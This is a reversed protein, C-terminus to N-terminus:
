AKKSKAQAPKRSPLSFAFAAAEERSSFSGLRDGENRVTWPGNNVSIIEYGNVPMRNIPQVSMPVEKICCTTAIIDWQTYDNIATAAIQRGHM